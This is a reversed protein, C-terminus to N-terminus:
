GASRSPPTPLRLAHPPDDLTRAVSLQAQETLYGSRFAPTQTALWEETRTVGLQPKLVETAAAEVGLYFDRDPHDMDLVARERRAAEILREVAAVLVPRRTRSRTM